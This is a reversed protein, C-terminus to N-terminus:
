PTKWGGRAHTLVVPVVVPLRPVATERLKRAWVRAVYENMRVPMLPDSESQHELLVYILVRTEHVDVSFLLDTHSDALEDDVFSGPELAITDWAIVEALPAPLCGRLLEAAHPPHEFASKFLADHPRKTM